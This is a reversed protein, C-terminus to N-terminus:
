TDGELILLVLLFWCLFTGADIVFYLLFFFLRSTMLKQCLMCSIIDYLQIIDYM